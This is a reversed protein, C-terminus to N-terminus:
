RGNFKDWERKIEELTPVNREMQKMNEVPRLIIYVENKIITSPSEMFNLIDHYFINKGFNLLSYISSWTTITAFTVM